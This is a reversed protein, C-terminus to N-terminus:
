SDRVSTQHTGSVASQCGFSSFRTFTNLLRYIHPGLLDWSLRHIRDITDVSGEDDPQVVEATQWFSEFFPGLLMLVGHCHGFENFPFFHALKRTKSNM